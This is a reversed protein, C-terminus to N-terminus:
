KREYRERKPDSNTTIEDLFYQSLGGTIKDLDFRVPAKMLGEYMSIRSNYTTCVVVTKYSSM